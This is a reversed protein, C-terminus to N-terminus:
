ANFSLSGNRTEWIRALIDLSVKVPPQSADIKTVVGAFHELIPKTEDEYLKLRHQIVAESADDLRNEKLARKRIRRVLEQRNACSLHFVQKVDIMGLMLEAQPVNRPIGDLILVDIDPKFRAAVVQAEISQHWLEVTLDDPVLQGRSSYEIFKQGIPTRTDLQRFVEGCAFHFFRPVNGLIKGQTGKGGGPPGILLYSVYRNMPELPVKKVRRTTLYYNFDRRKHGPAVM